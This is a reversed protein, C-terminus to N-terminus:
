KTLSNQNIHLVSDISDSVKSFHKFFPSNTRLSKTDCISIDINSYSHFESFYIVSKKRQRVHELADDYYDSIKTINFVILVSIWYNTADEITTINILNSSAIKMSHRLAVRNSIRSIKRCCRNFTHLSCIHLVTLSFHSKNTTINTWIKNLYQLLDMNNFAITCSQMLAVSFDIETKHLLTTYTTKFYRNLDYM